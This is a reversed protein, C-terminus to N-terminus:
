IDSTAAPLLDIRWVSPEPNTPHTVDKLHVNVDDIGKDFGGTLLLVYGVGFPSM